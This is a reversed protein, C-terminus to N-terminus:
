AEYVLERDENISKIIYPNKLASFEILDVERSLISTLRDRFDFYRSMFYGLDDSTFEVLFDADSQDPDFDTSRAASGFIELKRIGYEQCARIIEDQKAHILPHM